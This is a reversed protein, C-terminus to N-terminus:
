EEDTDSFEMDVLCDELSLDPNKIVVPSNMSRVCDEESGVDIIDGNNIPRSLNESRSEGSDIALELMMLKDEQKTLKDVCDQLMRKAALTLHNQAGNFLKSNDVIQVVDALFQSRSSYKSDKLKDRMTQFDMPKKVVNSYGYVRASVPCVFPEYEAVQILEMLINDCICSFEVSPNKRARKSTRNNDLYDCHTSGIKKKTKMSNYTLTEVKFFNNVDPKVMGEVSTSKKVASIVENKKITRLQAMINRRERRMAQKIVEDQVAYHKIFKDDKTTRIKVYLDIVPSKRVIEVRSFENGSEDRITRTIKLIRSNSAQVDEKIKPLENKNNDEIWELLERREQEEREFSLQTSSKNESLLMELNKGLEEFDSDESETSDDDDTSLVQTSSLLKNQLEFINQCDKMYREQIETISSNIRSYKCLGGEGAKTKETSLTRVAAVIEWRSLKKIVDQRLGHERLIARAESIKMRRLDGEVSIKKTRFEQQSLQLLNHSFKCLWCILKLLTRVQTRKSLRIYSFGEGCGTPDAPGHLQLICKGKMSELYAKTTNWPAAKVEDEMKISKEEEDEDIQEALIVKEGYGADKLRQQASLMSFYACYQEPAILECMEDESPLRFDSKLIWDITCTGVRKCDACRQFNM